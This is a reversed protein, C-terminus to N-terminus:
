KKVRSVKNIKIDKFIKKLGKLEPDSDFNDESSLEEWNGETPVPAMSSEALEEKIEPPMMPQVEEALNDSSNGENPANSIEELRAVKNQREDFIIFVSIKIGAIEEIIEELENKSKKITELEFKNDSILNWTKEDKFVVKLSALINYLM